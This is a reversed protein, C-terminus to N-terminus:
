EYKNDTKKHNRYVKILYYIEYIAIVGLFGGFLKRLMAVDMKVSIKAGIIAGIIGSAAIWIGINWDILREKISVIIAM